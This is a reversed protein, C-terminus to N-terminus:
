WIRQARRENLFYAARAMRHRIAAPDLGRAEGPDGGPAKRAVAFSARVAHEFLWERTSGIARNAHLDRLANTFTLRVARLAEQESRLTALAIEEIPRRYRAEIAEFAVVSGRRTARVLAEDDLLRFWALRSVAGVQSWFRGPSAAASATSRPSLAPM